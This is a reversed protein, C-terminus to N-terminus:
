PNGNQTLNGKLVFSGSENIYAIIQDNSDKVIFDDSQGSPMLTQQNESLSSKLIMNGTVLSIIAVNNDNKDRFVVEDDSSQSPTSNQQLAGKLIFNGNNDFSLINSTDSKVLIFLGSPPPPPVFCSSWCQNAGCSSDFLSYHNGTGGSSCCSGVSGCTCIDSEYWGPLYKSPTLYDCGVYCGPDGSDILLDSDDNISNSCEAAFGTVNSNIYIVNDVKKIENLGIRVSGVAKPIAVLYLSNKSQVIITSNQTKLSYNIRDLIVPVEFYRVYGDEVNAAILVERQLKLALDEVAENEKRLRFDNLQELSALEFAIAILFALGILVFFEASIQAKSNM